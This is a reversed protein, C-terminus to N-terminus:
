GASCQGVSARPTAEEIQTTNGTENEGAKRSERMTPAVVMQCRTLGVKDVLRDARRRYSEDTSANKGKFKDGMHKGITEFGRDTVAFVFEDGHVIGCVGWRPHYFHCPSANGITLGPEQVRPANGSGIRRHTAPEM